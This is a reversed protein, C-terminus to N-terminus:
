AALITEPNFSYGIGKHSFLCAKGSGLKRRLASIRNALVREQGPSEEDWFMGWLASNSHVMGPRRLFHLLLELEKPELHARVGDVELSHSEPDFKLWGLDYFGHVLFVRDRRRKLATLRARLEEYAFPKNLSDDAGADLGAVRDRTEAEGSVVLTPIMRIQPERERWRLLDIGSMGPLHVDLIITDFTKRKLLHQAKEGTEALRWDFRGAETKEFFWRFRDQWSEEDEVVLVRTKIM